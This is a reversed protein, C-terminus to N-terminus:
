MSINIAKKTIDLCSRTLPEDEFSYWDDECYFTATIPADLAGAAEALKYLQRITIGHKRKQENSTAEIDELTYLSNEDETYSSFDILADEFVNLDELDEYILWDNNGVWKNYYYLFSKRVEELQNPTLRELVTTWDWENKYPMVVKCIQKNDPTYFTIKEMM